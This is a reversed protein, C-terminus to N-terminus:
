DEEQHLLNSHDEAKLKEAWCTSASVAGLPLPMGRFLGFGGAAGAVRFTSAGGKPSETGDTVFDLSPGASNKVAPKLGLAKALRALLFPNFSHRNGAVTPAVSKYAPFPGYKNGIATVTVTPTAFVTSLEHGGNEAITLCVLARTHKRAAKCVAALGDSPFMMSPPLPSKGEGYVMGLFGPIVALIRGDTAVATGDSEILVSHLVQRTEDSSAAEWPEGDDSIRLDIQKAM